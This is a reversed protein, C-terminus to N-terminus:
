IISNRANFIKVIENGIDIDNQLKIYANISESNEVKALLKPFANLNFKNIYNNNNIIVYSVNPFTNDDLKQDFENGFNVIVCKDFAGVTLPQNFDNGFTLETCNQLVTLPQNYYDGFTINECNKLNDKEITQNFWKGFTIQKIHTLAMGIPKDYKMGFIINKCNPLANVEIDNDFYNSLILTNCNNLTNINIPQDFTGDKFSVLECNNLTNKLIPQNFDFGFYIQSCKPLINATIQQNYQEGFKVIKCNLLTNDLIPENYENHFTINYCNNLQGPQVQFFVDIIESVNKFNVTKILRIMEPTDRKHMNLFLRIFKTLKYVLKNLNKSKKWKDFDTLIMDIEIIDDINEIKIIPNVNNIFNYKILKEFEQLTISLNIAQIGMINVYYNNIYIYELLESNFIKNRLLISIYNNLYEINDNLNDVQGHSSSLSFKLNTDLMGGEETFPTTIKKGFLKIVNEFIVNNDPVDNVGLLFKTSKKLNEFSGAVEYLNRTLYKFNYEPNKDVISTAKIDVLLNSFSNLKKKLLETQDDNTLNSLDNNFYEHLKNNPYKDNLKKINELTIKDQNNDFLLYRYFNYITAEGCNPYKELQIDADNKIVAMDWHLVKFKGANVIIKEDIDTQITSIQQIKLTHTKKAIPFLNINIDDLLFENYYMGLLAIINEKILSISVLNSYLDITKDISLLFNMILKIFFIYDIHKDNNIKSNLRKLEKELITEKKKIETKQTGKTIKEKKKENEHKKATQAPQNAAQAPQNAAQTPEAPQKAAQALKARLKEENEIFVATNTSNVSKSLNIYNCGYLIKSFKKNINEISRNNQPEVNQPEVNQPELNTDIIYKKIINLCAPIKKLIMINDAYKDAYKDKTVNTAENIIKKIICTFYKPDTLLIYKEYDTNWNKNQDGNIILEFIKELVTTTKFDGSTNIVINDIVNKDIVNILRKILDDSENYEDFYKNNFEEDSKYVINLLEIFLNFFIMINCDNVNRQCIIPENETRKAFYQNRFKQIFELDNKVSTENYNPKNTFSDFPEDFFKFINTFIINKFL